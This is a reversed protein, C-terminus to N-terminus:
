SNRRSGEYQGLKPVYEITPQRRVPQPHLAMLDFFEAPMDPRVPLGLSKATEYTIPYDHTWTGQSLLTALDEAKEPKQHGAVRPASGISGISFMPINYLDPELGESDLENWKLPVAV